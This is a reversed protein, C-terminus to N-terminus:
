KKNQIQNLPVFHEIKISQSITCKKLYLDYKDPAYKELYLYRRVYNQFYESHNLAFGQRNIISDMPNHYDTGHSKVFYINKYSKIKNLMRDLDKQTHNSALSYYNLKKNKTYIEVLIQSDGLYDFERCVDVIILDKNTVTKDIYKAAARWDEKEYTTWDEVLTAISLAFIAILIAYSVKKSNFKDIGASVLLILAPSTLLSYRANFIPSFIYSVFLPLAIPLIFWIWFIGTGIISNNTERNSVAINLTSKDRDQKFILVALLILFIIALTISGSLEIFAEGGSFISIAPLWFGNSVSKMQGLFVFLWPLYLLFLVIYSIIFQIPKASKASKTKFWFFLIYLVQSLIILFAFNHTYTMASNVLIYLVWLIPKKDKNQLIKIILLYSISALLALLTYMRVEQSYFINIRSVAFIIASFLATKKNFVNKAITFIIPITLVSFLGSLSRAVTETNGFIIMWINLLMYYFPPHFDRSTLVPIENLPMKALAISYIEDFWYSELGINILRLIIGLGIIGLLWFIYKNKM